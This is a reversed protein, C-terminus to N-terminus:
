AISIVVNGKKHGTDTYRHAERIEELPYQKDIIPKLFGAEVLKCIEDLYDAVEPVDQGLVLNKKSTIKTWLMSITPLPNTINLYVGNQKLVKMCASFSSKNVAEFIIDYRKGNASFNERTYDIVHDAGLSRVLELNKTSCVGTVEAGFYKALQVAYTGVSGSAGYVLIKHGKKINAKRLYYLATRAGIPLAAAEEYSLNNPKRSVATDEQLCHYEAYGGFHPLTAAYIQDGPKFRTVGSGVAEVEGALEAGLIQNKPKTLGLTLRAPLWVSTPVDFSRVRVDAITVTTAHVKVLLENEKPTPKAVEQLNLVDPTGYKKYIIAKM